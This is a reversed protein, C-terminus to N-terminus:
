LAMIFDIDFYLNKENKLETSIAYAFIKIRYILFVNGLDRKHFIIYKKTFILLVGIFWDRGQVKLLEM